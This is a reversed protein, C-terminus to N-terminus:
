ECDVSCHAVTCDFFATMAAECAPLAFCSDVCGCVPKSKTCDDYSTAQDPCESQLESMTAQYVDVCRQDLCDQCATTAALAMDCSPHTSPLLPTASHGQADDYTLTDAGSGIPLEFAIVCEKKEGTAVVLDASCAPDLSATATSLAPVGAIGGVVFFAPDLGLAAPDDYNTLALRLVVFTNGYDPELDGISALTAVLSVAIHFGLTSTAATTSPGVGSGAGGTGPGSEPELACAPAAVLALMM